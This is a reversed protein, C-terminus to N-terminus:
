PANGQFLFPSVPCGFVGSFMWSLHNTTTKPLLTETPILPLWLTFLLQAHPSQVQPRRISSCLLSPLCLSGSVLGLPHGKPSFHGSGMQLSLPFLCTLSLNCILIFLGWLLSSLRDWGLSPRPFCVNLSLTSLARALTLSCLSPDWLHKPLLPPWASLLFTPRTLGLELIKFGLEAMM